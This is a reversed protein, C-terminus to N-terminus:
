TMIDQLDALCIISLWKGNEATEVQAGTMSIIEKAIESNLENDEVLM